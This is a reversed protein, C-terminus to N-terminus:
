ENLQAQLKELNQLAKVKLSGAGDFDWRRNRYTNLWNTLIAIGDVPRCNTDVRKGNNIVAHDLYQSEDSLGWKWSLNKSVFRVVDGRAM